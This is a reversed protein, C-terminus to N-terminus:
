QFLKAREAQAPTLAARLADPDAADILEVLTDLEARYRRLADLIAARNTLLIDVMMTLDSAALRTTDRFGSAALPWLGDDQVTQAARMLAAAVVYPLHSSMAVLADHREASLILPRAGIAAILEHALALAAPSTRALPTLVFTKDQFLTAEAHEIGNVEKGCMPHGGLPDFHSPLKEMAAVIHSKTSGLDLLTVAERSRKAHGSRAASTLQQLQSLIARVPAALVLLNCDLAADFKADRDVVAYRVALALTEPNSDVGVIERCHGRLALALSGGMLGLGVVAVRANALTFDPEDM